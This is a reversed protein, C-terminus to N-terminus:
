GLGLCFYAAPLYGLLRTAACVCLFLTLWISQFVLSYSVLLLAAATFLAVSFTLLAKM